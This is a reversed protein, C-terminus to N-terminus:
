GDKYHHDDIEILEVQEICALEYPYSGEPKIYIRLKKNINATYIEKLNGKKKEINYVKALPNLILDKFTQSEIILKEIAAITQVENNMHKNIIKRKLDRKYASSKIIVM